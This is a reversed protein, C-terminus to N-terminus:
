MANIRLSKKPKPGFHLIRGDAEEIVSQEFIPCIGSMHMGDLRFLFRAHFSHHFSLISTAALPTPSQGGGVNSFIEIDAKKASFDPM